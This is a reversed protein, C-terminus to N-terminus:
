LASATLEIRTFVLIQIRAETASITLVHSYIFNLLQNFLKLLASSADRLFNM